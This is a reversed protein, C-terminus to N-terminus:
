YGIVEDLPQHRNTYTVPGRRPMTAVGHLAIAYAMVRDDFCGKQANTRGRDDVVYTRLESVLDPDRIGSTDTMVARALGDIIVPKTKTTTLWGVRKIDRDGYAYDMQKENSLRPYGLEQLKRLTTLGHNNREVMMYAKNYYRGLNNLLYGFDLPDILGRWCAVQDGNQDLVQAVSYDGHDLGESVDVGIVYSKDKDVWEWLKMMGLSSQFVGSQNVDCVAIPTVATSLLRDLHIQDIVTRGSTLFAERPNSPYEQRFLDESGLELIKARRFSLQRDDLRYADVLANEEETREFGDQITARYEAMEFWPLFILQWEKRGDLCELCRDYFWGSAGNATSELIVETGTPGVTQILGATILDADPYFAVESGHVLQNTQGRGTQGTKATGVRYQSNLGKFRLMSLTKASLEPKFAPDPVNEYFTTVMRFIASTSEQLHSLVFTSCNPTKTTLWFYRGEVYTSIGTQRAKLILTRVRGTEKKQAVIARHVKTQSPNMKFRNLRGAKTVLYLVASSYAPFSKRFKEIIQQKDASVVVIEKYYVSGIFHVFM